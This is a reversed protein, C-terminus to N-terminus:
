WGTSAWAWGAPRRCATSSRARPLGRRGADGRPRGGRGAAVPLGAARAPRAPRGARLLGHGARRRLDGPGVERGAPPRRPAAPDAPREGEPLRHLVGPTTTHGRVARRLDGRARLGVVRRRRPRSRHAGRPPAARRAPHRGHGGRRAGRLGGRLDTKVPWDGSFDYEVTKGDADTRRAVPSGTSRTAAEQIIEQTLIRMTNYDGYTEYVEMSTFEPNHKFDAGENRFQRGSSSSRRWAGSWCGSSTCSPPSACTSTWTTPTSTPRSRGRTRAATCWSCSRADGGRHLRARALVRARQARDDRAPLRHRPVRSARDPRRLPQPDAGGPRDLGHHKDPLPRLSKSTLALHEARM